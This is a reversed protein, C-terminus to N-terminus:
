VFGPGAAALKSTAISRKLPESSGRRSRVTWSLKRSCKTLAPLMRSCAADGCANAAPAIQQCFLEKAGYLECPGVISPRTFGSM